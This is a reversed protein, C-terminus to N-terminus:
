RRQLKLYSSYFPNFDLISIAFSTQGGFSFHRMSAVNKTESPFLEDQFTM